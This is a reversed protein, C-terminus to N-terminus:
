LFVWGWFFGEQGVGGLFFALGVADVGFFLFLYGLVHDSYLIFFILYYLAL